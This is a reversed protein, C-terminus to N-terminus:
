MIILYEKKLMIKLQIGLYGKYYLGFISKYCQLISIAINSINM